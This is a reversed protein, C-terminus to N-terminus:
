LVAFGIVRGFETQADVPQIRRGVHLDRWSYVGRDRLAAVWRDIRDLGAADFRRTDTRSKDIVTPSVWRTSDHHHIRILNFGLSAIRRAQADIVADDVHFDILDRVRWSLASRLEDAPVEPAELLLLSYVDDEVVITCPSAGLRHRRALEGLRGAWGEHGDAEAFECIELVPPAEGGRSVVTLGVGRASFGIAVHRNATASKKNFPRM